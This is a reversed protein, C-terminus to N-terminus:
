RLHEGATIRRGYSAGLPSERDDLWATVRAREDKRGNHYAVGNPSVHDRIREVDEASPFTTMTMLREIVKCAIKDAIEDEWTLDGPTGLNEDSGQNAM